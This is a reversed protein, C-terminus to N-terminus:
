GKRFFVKLQIIAIKTSLAYFRCTDSVSRQKSVGEILETSNEALVERMDIIIDVFAWLLSYATLAIKEWSGCCWDVILMEYCIEGNIRMKEGVFVFMYM